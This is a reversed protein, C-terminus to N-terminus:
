PKLPKGIFDMIKNIPNNLYRSIFSDPSIEKDIADHARPTVKVEPMVLSISSDPHERYLAAALERAFGEDIGKSKNYRDREWFSKYIGYEGPLGEKEMLDKQEQNPDRNWQQFWNYYEDVYAHEDKAPGKEKVETLNRILDAKINATGSHPYALRWAIDNILEHAQYDPRDIYKDDIDAM